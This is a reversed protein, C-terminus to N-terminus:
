GERAPRELSCRALVSGDCCVCRQSPPSRLGPVILVVSAADPIQSGGPRDPGHRSMAGAAAM